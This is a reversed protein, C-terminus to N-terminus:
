PGIPPWSRLEDLTFRELWWERFAELRDPDPPDPRHRCDGCVHPRGLPRSRRVNTAALMFLDGCASCEVEVPAEVTV